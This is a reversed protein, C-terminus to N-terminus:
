NGNLERRGVNAQWGHDAVVHHELASQLSGQPAPRVGAFPDRDREFALFVGGDRILVALPHEMERRVIRASREIDNNSAAVRNRKFVDKEAVYPQTRALGIHSPPHGIGGRGFLNGPQVVGAHALEEHVDNGVFGRLAVADPAPPDGIKLVGLLEAGDAEPKGLLHLLLQIHRDTQDPGRVPRGGPFGPYWTLGEKAVGIKDGHELALLGSVHRAELGLM